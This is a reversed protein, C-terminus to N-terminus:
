TNIKWWIEELLLSFYTFSWLEAEKKITSALCIFELAMGFDKEMLIQFSPANKPEKLKLSMFIASHIADSLLWHGKYQNLVYTIVIPSLCDLVIQYIHWTM